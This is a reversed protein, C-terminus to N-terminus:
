QEVVELSDELSVELEFDEVAEIPVIIVKARLRAKKTTAQRVFRYGEIGNGSKMQNLLTSVQATFNIWLVENNQEFTYKNATAFLEKKLSSILNRVNLFSTAKTNGYNYLATRNGFVIYGFPRINCIPNISIGVNDGEVDLDVEGASARAQLEECEARTYKVLPAVLGPIVGRFSGAVAYWNPNTQVSRAYALLYGASGPLTVNVRDSKTLEETTYLEDPLAIKVNVWPTFASCYESGSEGIKSIIDARVASVSTSSQAHDVLAVCDGRTEACTIMGAVGGQDLAYAGTTLFRINYENKDQLKTWSPTAISTAKVTVKKSYTVTRRVMDIDATMIVENPIVPYGSGLDTFDAHGNVTEVSVEVPESGPTVEYDFTIVNEGIKFEIDSGVGQITFYNYEEGQVSEEDRKTLVSTKYTKTEQVIESGSSSVCGEYLVQMGLQLLKYALKYSGDVVLNGDQLVSAESLKSTSTFLTPEVNGSASLGPIFVVNSVSNLQIAGTNDIETIKIKPM